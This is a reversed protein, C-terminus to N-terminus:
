ENNEAIFLVLEKKLLAKFKQEDNFLKWADGIIRIKKEEGNEIDVLVIMPSIFGFERATQRNEPLDMDVLKFVVQDNKMERQFDTQLVDRSFKEMNLCQYCRKHYHFLLVLTQNGNDSALREFFTNDQVLTSNTVMRYIGLLVSIIVFALIVWKIVHKAPQRPVHTLKELVEKRFEPNIRFEMEESGSKIEGKFAYFTVPCSNVYDAQICSELVGAHVLRNAEAVEDSPCCGLRDAPDSGTLLFYGKDKEILKLLRERLNVSIESLVSFDTTVPQVSKEGIKFDDFMWKTGKRAYNDQYFENEEVLQDEARFLGDTKMLERSEFDPVGTVKGRRIITGDSLVLLRFPGPYFLPIRQDSRTISTVKKLLREQDKELHDYKFYEPRDGSIKQGPEIRRILKTYPPLALVNATKECVPLPHSQILLHHDDDLAAAAAGTYVAQQGQDYCPGHKGKFAIIKRLLDGHSFSSITMGVFGTTELNKLTNGLEEARVSVDIHELKPLSRYADDISLEDPNQLFFKKM